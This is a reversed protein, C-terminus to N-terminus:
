TRTICFIWVCHLGYLFDNLRKNICSFKLVDRFLRANRSTEDPEFSMEHAPRLPSNLGEYVFSLGRCRAQYIQQRNQTNRGQSQTARRFELPGSIKRTTMLCRIQTQITPRPMIMRFRPGVLFKQTM